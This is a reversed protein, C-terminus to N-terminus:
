GKHVAILLRTFRAAFSVPNSGSNFTCPPTPLLGFPSQLCGRARPAKSRPHPPQWACHSPHSPPWSFHSGGFCYLLRSLPWLGALELGSDRGTARFPSRQRRWYKVFRRAKDLWVGDARHASPAQAGVSGTRRSDCLRLGTYGSRGRYDNSCRRTRWEPACGKRAPRRPVNDPWGERAGRGRQADAGTGPEALWCLSADPNGVPPVAQKVARQHSAVAIRHVALAQATGNRDSRRHHTQAFRTEARECGDVGVNPWGQLVGAHSHGRFQDFFDLAVVMDLSPSGAGNRALEFNVVAGDLADQALGPQRTDPHHASRADVGIQGEDVLGQLLEGRQPGAAQVGHGPLPAVLAPGVV